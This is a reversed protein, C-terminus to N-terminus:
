LCWQENKGNECVEYSTYLANRIRQVTKMHERIERHIDKRFIQRALERIEEDSSFVVENEEDPYKEVQKKANVSFEAYMYPSDFDGRLVSSYIAPTYGEDSCSERDGDMISVKIEDTIPYYKVKKVIM